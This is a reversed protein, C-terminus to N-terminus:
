PTSGHEEQDIQAAYGSDAVSTQRLVMNVTKGRFCRPSKSYEVSSLLGRHLFVVASLRNIGDSLTVRAMPFEPSKNDLKLPLHDPPFFILVMRDESSRQVLEVSEVQQWFLPQDEASLSSKAVQLLDREQKRLGFSGGYKM